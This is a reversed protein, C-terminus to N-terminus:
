ININLSINILLIKSLLFLRYFLNFCLETKMELMFNKRKFNFSCFVESVTGPYILNEQYLSSTLAQVKLLYEQNVSLNTFLM